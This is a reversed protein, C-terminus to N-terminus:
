GRGFRLAGLVLLGLVSFVLLGAHRRLAVFYLAPGLAVYYLGIGGAVGRAVSDGRSAPGSVLVLLASLCVNALGSYSWAVTLLDAFRESLAGAAAEEHIRPVGRVLTLVNLLLQVVGAGALLGRALGVTM